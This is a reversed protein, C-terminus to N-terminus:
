VLGLSLVLEVNVLISFRRTKCSGPVKPVIAKRHRPCKWRELGEQRGVPSALLRAQGRGQSAPASAHVLMESSPQTLFHTHAAGMQGSEPLQSMLVINPSLLMLKAGM